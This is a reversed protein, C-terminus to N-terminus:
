GVKPLVRASGQHSLPCHLLHPSSSAWSSRMNQALIFIGEKEQHSSQLLHPSSHETEVKYFKLSKWTAGALM